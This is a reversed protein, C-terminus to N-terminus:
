NSEQVCLLEKALTALADFTEQGDKRALTLFERRLQAMLM